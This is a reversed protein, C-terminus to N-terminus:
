KGTNVADPDYWEMDQTAGYWIDPAFWYPDDGPYFSRNKENFEDSFVLRLNDGDIGQRTMASKPTDPDVLGTRINRLLSHQNDNVHSWAESGNGMGTEDAPTHYTYPILNTGTFSIVPLVVFIVGLGLVLFVMGLTNVLNERSFRDKLKPTYRKDDDWRSMHMEDDDEQQDIYLPFACPAGFRDDMYAFFEAKEPDADHIFTPTGVRATRAPRTGAALEDDEIKIRQMPPRPAPAVGESEYVSPVRKSDKFPNSLRKSLDATPEVPGTSIRAVSPLPSSLDQESNNQTAFPNFYRTYDSGLDRVSRPTSLKVLSTTSGLPSTGDPLALLSRATLEGSASANSDGSVVGALHGSPRASSPARISIEVSIDSDKHSERAGSSNSPTPNLPSSVAPAHPSVIGQSRPSAAVPVAVTAPVDSHIHRTDRSTSRSAERFTQASAQANLNTASRGAQQTQREGGDTDEVRSPGCLAPRLKHRNPRQPVSSPAMATTAWPAHTVVRYQRALAYLAIGTAHCLSLARLHRRLSLRISHTDFSTLMRRQKRPCPLQRCASPSSCHLLTSLFGRVHRM